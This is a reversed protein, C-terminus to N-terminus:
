RLPDIRDFTSGPEPPRRMLLSGAIGLPLDYPMETTEKSAKDGREVKEPADDGVKGQFKRWNPTTRVEDSTTEEPPEVIVPRHGKRREHRLPLPHRGSPHYFGRAARSHIGVCIGLSVRKIMGHGCTKAEAPVVLFLPVMLLPIKLAPGLKM